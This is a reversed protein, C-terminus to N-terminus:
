SPGFVVGPNGSEWKPYKQMVSTYIKSDTFGALWAQLRPWPQENFWGKDTHAFQRVFPAIAMDALAINNGFLYQTANLQANLRGLYLSGEHRQVQSDVGAYREPYKYRDLHYKFGDDFEAILQLMEAVSGQEPILWKEPDHQELAWLMIDISQDLVRGDVYILIPVTGKASVELMEQPKERLVVERLECVRNSVMLALRARVAYPCRRFSYLIPYTASM